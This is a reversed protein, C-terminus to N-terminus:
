QVVCTKPKRKYLEYRERAVKEAVLVTTGLDLADEPIRSGVEYALDETSGCYLGVVHMDDAVLAAGSDGYDSLAELPKIKILEDIGVFHGKERNHSMFAWFDTAVIEGTKVEGTKQGIWRVREGQRPARYALAPPDPDGVGTGPPGPYLCEIRTSTEAETARFYAFDFRADERREKDAFYAQESEYPKGPCVADVSGIVRSGPKGQHPQVVAAGKDPLVHANSVGVRLQQQGDPRWLITAGLTGAYLRGLAQIQYGGPTPKLSRDLPM